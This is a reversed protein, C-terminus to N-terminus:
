LKGIFRLFWLRIKWSLTPYYTKTEGGNTVTIIAPYGNIHGRAKIM